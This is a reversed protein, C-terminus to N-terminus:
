GRRRWAATLAAPVSLERARALRALYDPRSMETAGLSALHATLWQVEVLRAPDGDDRVVECLAALAVKSADRERHFMSEGAFVGGVAVGYLGGVLRGERWVEVSHAWGLEHLRTYAAVVARTIWRGPRSPDACGRIVGAFDRDISVEFRRRSRRLSRTVRMADPELVGRPDPSWWVLPGAGHRGAGMPFMGLRYATLVTGPELDGGAAVVDEGPRLPPLRPPLAAPPPEIPRLCGSEEGPRVSDDTPM